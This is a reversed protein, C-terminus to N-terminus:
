SHTTLTDTRARSYRDVLLLSAARTHAAALRGARPGDHAIIAELIAAHEDWIQRPYGAVTFTAAMVRRMNVWQGRMVDSLIRNGVADYLSTHFRLDLDIAAPVSLDDSATAKRGADVIQEVADWSMDTREALREAVHREVGERFEYLDRILETDLPAVITGRWRDTQVLGERELVVLAERVPARSVALRAALDEQRIRSGPCLDGSLIAARIREAARDALDSARRLRRM